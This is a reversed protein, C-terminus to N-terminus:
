CAVAREYREVVDAAIGSAVVGGDEFLVAAECRRALALDHTVVILAHGSDALLHDAVARANRADLFATPEDAVVLDPSRVFAGALALLQKQGGSLDHAPRDALADLGFRELVAALRRGREERSLRLARLSLAVDEAVTPMIIQVDPNSLVLAVRRRLDAADREPDLGLVALEGSARRVLGTILRAFTSKGSGNDGIVAITRARLDLAVDQLVERDGLRATLGRCRVVSM